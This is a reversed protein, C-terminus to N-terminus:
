LDVSIDDSEEMERLIQRTTKHSFYHIIANKVLILAIKSDHGPDGESYDLYGDSIQILIDKYTDSIDKTSCVLTDNTSVMPDKPLRKIQGVNMKMGDM